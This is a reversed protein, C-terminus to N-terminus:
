GGSRSRVRWVLVICDCIDVARGFLNSVKQKKAVLTVFDDGSDDYGTNNTLATPGTPALVVQRTIQM